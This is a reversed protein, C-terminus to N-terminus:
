LPGGGESIARVAMGIMAQACSLSPEGVLTSPWEVVLTVLRVPRRLIMLPGLTRNGMHTIADGVVALFLEGEQPPRFEGTWEFGEPVPVKGLDMADYPNNPTLIAYTGQWRDNPYVKRPKGTSPDLYWDGQTPPRFSLIRVGLPLGPINQGANM